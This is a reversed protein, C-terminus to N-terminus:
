RKVMRSSSTKVIRQVEGNSRTPHSGRRLFRPGDFHSLEFHSYVGRAPFGHRRPPRVGHHSRPDVGFRRPVLCSERSGFGYSRHNPGHSFHSPAHSSFHPPFDIFKDHYSNRDYDV